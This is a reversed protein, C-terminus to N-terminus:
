IQNTVILPFDIIYFKCIEIVDSTLQHQFLYDNVLGVGHIVCVLLVYTRVSNIITKMM